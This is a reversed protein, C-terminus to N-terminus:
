TQTKKPEARKTARGEGRRRPEGRSRGVGTEREREKANEQSLLLLSSPTTRVVRRACLFFAPPFLVPPPSTTYSLLLTFNFKLLPCSSSPPKGERCSIYTPVTFGTPHLSCPLYPPVHHLPPLHIDGVGLDGSRSCM